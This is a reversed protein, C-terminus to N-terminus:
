IDELEQPRFRKKYMKEIHILYSDYLHFYEKSMAIIEDKTNGSEYIELFLFDPDVIRMYFYAVEDGKTLGFNTKSTTLKEAAFTMVQAVSLTRSTFYYRNQKVTEDIEAIKDSSLFIFNTFRMNRYFNNITKPNYEYGNNIYTPM